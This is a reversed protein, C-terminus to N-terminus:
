HALNALTDRLQEVENVAQEYKGGKVLLNIAMGCGGYTEIIYERDYADISTYMDRVDTIPLKHKTM